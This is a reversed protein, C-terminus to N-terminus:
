AEIVHKRSLGRENRGEGMPFYVKTALVYSGRRYPALARGVIREANGHGYADATDFLNVGLEYARHICAEAAHDGVHGGYTLWSGLSVESVKVGAAGLRRYRM